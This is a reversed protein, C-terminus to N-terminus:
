SRTLKDKGKLEEKLLRTEGYRLLRYPFSQPPSPPERSHPNSEQSRTAVAVALSPARCRARQRQGDRPGPLPVIGRSKSFSKLVEQGARERGQTQFSQLSAGDKGAREPPRAGPRHLRLHDPLRWIRTHSPQSADTPAPLGSLHLTNAGATVHPPYFPSFPLM